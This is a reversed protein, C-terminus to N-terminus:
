MVSNDAINKIMPIADPITALIPILSIAVSNTFPALSSTYPASTIPRAVEMITTICSPFIISVIIYARAEATLPSGGAKLATPINTTCLKM